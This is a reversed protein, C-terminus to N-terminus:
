KQKEVCNAFTTKGAETMFATNGKNWFVISEDANAYRAGSASIVQPLTLNRGDSLVLTVKGNFFVGEVAKGGDCAFAVDNVPAPAAAPATTPASKANLFAHYEYEKGLFFGLAFVGVFLIVAIVQSLGTVKNWEIHSM